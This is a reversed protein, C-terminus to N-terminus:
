AAGPLMFGSNRSYGGVLSASQAFGIECAPSFLVIYVFGWLIGDYARHGRILYKFGPVM